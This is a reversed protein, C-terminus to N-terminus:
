LLGDELAQLAIDVNAVPDANVDNDNQIKLFTALVVGVIAGALNRVAVEDPHRGLRKAIMVALMDLGQAMETLIVTTLEPITAILRFRERELVLRDPPLSVYATKMAERFARVVSMHAPQHLFIDIIVPDLSDYLIVAGKTQFYRFFSSQSVEASEAIQEVTTADYGQHIFLELACQQIRLMAKQKKRESLTLAGQQM